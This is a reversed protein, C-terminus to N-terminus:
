NNLDWEILDHWRPNKKAEERYAPDKLALVKLQKIGNKLENECYRLIKKYDADRKPNNKLFDIIEISVHCSEIAIFAPNANALLSGERFHHIYGSYSTSRVKSAKYCLYFLTNVDEGVRKPSFEVKNILSMKFLKGTCFKLKQLFHMQCVAMKSMLFDGSPIVSDYHQGNNLDYRVCFSTYVIESNHQKALMLTMELFNALLEDDSDLYTIYDAGLENAHKNIDIRAVGVGENVDKRYFYINDYQKAYRDLIDPTSDKSADDLLILIWNKYTQNLVSKIAREVFAESNYCPIGVAVKPNNM